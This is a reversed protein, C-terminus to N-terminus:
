SRQNVIAKGYGNILMKLLERLLQMNPEGRLDYRLQLKDTIYPSLHLGSRFFVFHRIRYGTLGREQVLFKFLETSVTEGNEHYHTRSLTGVQAAMRKLYKEAM